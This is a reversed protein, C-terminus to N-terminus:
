KRELFKLCQAKHKCDHCGNAAIDSPNDVNCFCSPLGIYPKIIEFKEKSLIKTYGWDWVRYFAKNYDRMDDFDVVCEEHDDICKRRYAGIAKTILLQNKFTNLNKFMALICILLGIVSIALSILWIIILAYEPQSM